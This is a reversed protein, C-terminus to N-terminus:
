TEGEHEKAYHGGGGRRHRSLQSIKIHSPFRNIHGVVGGLGCGGDHMSRQM